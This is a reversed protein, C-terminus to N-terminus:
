DCYKSSVMGGANDNIYISGEAPCIQKNFLLGLSLKRAYVEDAGVLSSCGAYDEDLLSYCYQNSDSKLTCLTGKAPAFEPGFYPYPLIDGTYTAGHQNICSSSDCYYRSFFKIEGGLSALCYEEDEMFNSDDCRDCSVDYDRKQVFCNSNADCSYDYCCLGSAGCQSPRCDDDSSCVAFVFSM